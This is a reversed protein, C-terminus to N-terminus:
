AAKRRCSVPYRKLGKRPLGFARNVKRLKRLLSGSGTDWARNATVFQAARSVLGRMAAFRMADPGFVSRTNPGSAGSRLVSGARVGMVFCANKLPMPEAKDFVGQAKIFVGRLKSFVGQTEPPDRSLYDM